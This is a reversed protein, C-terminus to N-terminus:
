KGRLRATLQGSGFRTTLLKHTEVNCTKIFHADLKQGRWENPLPSFGMATERQLGLRLQRDAETQAQAQRQDAVEQRTIKRLTATDANLLSENHAEIQRQQHIHRSSKNM